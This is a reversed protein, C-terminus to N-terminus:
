HVTKIKATYLKALLPSIVGGQPTGSKKPRYGYSDSHFIPDLKLELYMKVVMQAIRDSITPIRLSRIGGNKKLIEVKIVTPPFYSGSSMRNWTKYLNGKLDEEFEEFDVHDIGAVGRSSKVRRYAEMVLNKPIYFPKISKSNEM